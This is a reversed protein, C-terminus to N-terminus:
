VLKLVYERAHVIGPSLHCSKVQLVKVIAGEHMPGLVGEVNM